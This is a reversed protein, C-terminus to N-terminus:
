YSTFSCAAVMTIQYLNSLLLTQPQLGQNINTTVAQLQPKQKTELEHSIEWRQIPAGM